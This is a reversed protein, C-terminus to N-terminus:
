QTACPPLLLVTLKCLVALKMSHLQIVTLSDKDTFFVNLYIYLGGLLPKCLYSKNGRMQVPSLTRNKGRSKVPAM